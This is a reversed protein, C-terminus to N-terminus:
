RLARRLPKLRTQDDQVRQKIVLLKAGNRGLPHKSFGDASRIFQPHLTVSGLRDDPTHVAASLTAFLASIPQRPAQELPRRSRPRGRPAGEGTRQDCAGGLAEFLRQAGLAQSPRAFAPAAPARAQRAAMVAYRQQAKSEILAQRHAELEEEQQQRAARKELDSRQQRNKVSLIEQTRRHTEEIRKVAKMEEAQLRAIRNALVQRDAEVKMRARKANLM